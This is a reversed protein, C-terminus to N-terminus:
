QLFQPVVSFQWSLCDSFLKMSFTIKSSPSLSSYSNEFFFSFSAIEPLLFLMYLFRFHYSCLDRQEQGRVTNPVTGPVTTSHSSCVPARLTLGLPLTFTPVPLITLFLVPFTFLLWFMSPRTCQCNLNQGQLLQSPKLCFVPM